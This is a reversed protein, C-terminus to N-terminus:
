SDTAISSAGAGNGEKPGRSYQSSLGGRGNDAVVVLVQGSYLNKEDVVLNTRLLAALAGNNEAYTADNRYQARPSVNVVVQMYLAGSPVIMSSSASQLVTQSGADGYITPM